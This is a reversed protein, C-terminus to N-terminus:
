ILENSGHTDGIIFVHEYKEFDVIPIIEKM